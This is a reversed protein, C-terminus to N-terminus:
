KASKADKQAVALDEMDKQVMQLCTYMIEAAIQQTRHEQKDSACIAATTKIIELIALISQM